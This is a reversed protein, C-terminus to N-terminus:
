SYHPHQSSSLTWGQKQWMMFFVGPTVSVVTWLDCRSGVVCWELWWVFNKKELVYIPNIVQSASFKHGQGGTKLGAHVGASGLNPRFVIHGPGAGPRQRRDVRARQHFLKNDSPKMSLPVGWETPKLPSTGEEFNCKLIGSDVTHPADFFGSLCSFQRVSSWVCSFLVVSLM